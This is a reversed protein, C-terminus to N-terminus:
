QAVAKWVLENLSGPNMLGSSGGAKLAPKAPSSYEDLKKDPFGTYDDWVEIVLNDTPAVFADFTKNWVPNKSNAVYNTCGVKSGGVYLCAYADPLSSMALKASVLTFTYWAGTGQKGAM